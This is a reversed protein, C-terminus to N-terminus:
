DQALKIDKKHYRKILYGPLLAVMAVGALKAMTWFTFIDSMSSITSLICGTQVCIFCYPMLGIFVSLFFLHIPINIIPSAMNLFWNPSMPFLRLFLLFFFLSDSNESVLNQMRKVKDPFYKLIFTKGFFQSLLYCCTAGFATLLCVLPFGYQVGFLTGALLNLLASGPIAFSQKYIYASCFLILVYGLHHTKYQSLVAALSTLEQLNTPFSIASGGSAAPLDPLHSSLYYLFATYSVFVVPIWLIRLMASM